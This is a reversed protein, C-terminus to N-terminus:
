RRGRRGPNNRPAPIDAAGLISRLLIPLPIIRRVVATAEHRARDYAEGFDSGQRSDAYWALAFAADNIAGEARSVTTRDGAVVVALFAASSAYILTQVGAREAAHKAAQAEKMAAVVDDDSAKGSAWRTAIKVAERSRGFVGEIEMCPEIALCAALVVRWRPVPECLSIMRGGDASEGEWFSLWRAGKVPCRPAEVIEGNVVVFLKAKKAMVDPQIIEMPGTAYLDDWRVEFPEGSQDVPDKVLADAASQSPAFNVLEWRPLEDDAVSRRVLVIHTDKKM